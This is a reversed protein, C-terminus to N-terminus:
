KNNEEFFYMRCEGTYAVTLNERTRCAKKNLDCVTKYTQNDTGCVPGDSSSGYNYENCEDPCSCYPLGNNDMKCKSGDSCTISSCALDKLHLDDIMM